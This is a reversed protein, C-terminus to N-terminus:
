SEAVIEIWDPIMGLEEKTILMLSHKTKHSREIIELSEARHPDGMATHIDNISADLFENMGAMGKKQYPGLLLKMSLTHNDDSDLNLDDLYDAIDGGKVRSARIFKARLAVIREETMQVTGNSRAKESALRKLAPIQAESTLRLLEDEAAKEAEEIILDVGNFKAALKAGRNRRGKQRGDTRKRTIWQRL